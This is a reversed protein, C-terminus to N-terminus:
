AEYKNFSVMLMILFTGMVIFMDAVNFVPFDYGEGFKVSIFDVVYSLRIRDIFNGITGGLLMALAVNMPKNFKSSYKVLIIFISIIVITTIIIFFIKKNQLIGFAAGYNEVYDLQFFNKIIIYPKEGKLYKVAAYKSAQDLVVILLAIFLLM